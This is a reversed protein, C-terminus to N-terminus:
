YVNKRYESPKVGVIRKFVTSFHSLNIFGCLRAAEEITLDDRKLMEKASQIRIGILYQHPSQGTHCKFIREFHAPSIYIERCIEEITINYNSNVKMYELARSIHKNDNSGKRKPTKADDSVNRLLQYAIQTAISNVMGPYENGYNLLERKFSGIIELLHPNCFNEVRKFEIKSKDLAQVAIEQFFDKNVSIASYEGMIRGDFPVVMLDMDPELSMLSGKRFQYERRGIKLLPPTSHFVVFHYHDLSVKQGNVYEKPEFVAVHESIYEPSALRINGPVKELISNLYSQM